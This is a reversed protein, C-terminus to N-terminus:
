NIRNRSKKFAAKGQARRRALKALRATITGLDIDDREFIRGYWTMVSDHEPHKPDTMADLFEEFGPLGGVDEPPARRAGDIFRPYDVMPDAAIVEEVMITHRWDDGFDYTYTFGTEGRALIAGLRIYRADRMDDGWDPDPYGYRRDGIEFQFLHYDEFLMTAQIVDHIAKLTSTLPVEVRRWIAPKIDDLQIHLRAIRDSTM